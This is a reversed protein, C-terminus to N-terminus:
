TVGEIASSVAAGENIVDRALRAELRKRAPAVSEVLICSRRIRLSEGENANSVLEILLWFALDRASAALLPSTFVVVHEEILGTGDLTGANFVREQLHCLSSQLTISLLCERHGVRHHVCRASHLQFRLIVICRATGGLGLRIAASRLNEAPRNKLCPCIRCLHIESM